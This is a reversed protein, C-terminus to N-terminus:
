SCAEDLSELELHLDPLDSMRLIKTLLNQSAHCRQMSITATLHQCFIGENMIQWLSTLMQHVGALTLIPM